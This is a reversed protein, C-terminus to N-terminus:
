FILIRYFVNQTLQELPRFSIGWNLKYTLCHASPPSNNLVTNTEQSEPSNVPRKQQTKQHQIYQQRRAMLAEYQAKTMRRSM